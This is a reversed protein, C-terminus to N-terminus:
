ENIWVRKTPFNFEAEYADLVDQRDDFACEVESPDRHADRFWRRLLWPKLETSCRHDGNPRMLMEARRMANRDIQHNLWWLRLGLYAQPMATVFLLRAPVGVLSDFFEEYNEFPDLPCRVHYQHFDEDSAAIPATPGRKTKCTSHYRAHAPMFQMRHADDSICNDIDWILIREIM